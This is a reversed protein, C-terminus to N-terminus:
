GVVGGVTAREHKPHNAFLVPTKSLLAQRINRAYNEAIKRLSDIRDRHAVVFVVVSSAFNESFAASCTM